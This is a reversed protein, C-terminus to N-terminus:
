GTPVVDVRKARICLLLEREGSGRRLVNVDFQEALWVARRRHVDIEAFWHRQRRGSTIAHGDIGDSVGILPAIIEGQRNM